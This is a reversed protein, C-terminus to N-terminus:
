AGRDVLVTASDVAAAAFSGTTRSKVLGVGEALWTTTTMETAVAGSDAAPTFRAIAVIRIADFRGAPVAVAQSGAERYTVSLVGAVPQTVGDVTQTGSLRHREAWADGPTIDAPFTVGFGGRTTVRAVTGVAALVAAAALQGDAAAVGAPTCRWRSTGAAAGGFVTRVMFSSPEVATVTSSSTTTGAPTQLRYSWSAGDSVPLYATACGGADAAVLDPSVPPQSASGSGCGGGVLLVLLVAVSCSRSM